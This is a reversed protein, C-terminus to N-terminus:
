QVRWFPPLKVRLLLTRPDGRKKNKSVGMNIWIIWIFGNYKGIFWSINRNKERLDTAAETEKGTTDAELLAAERAEQARRYWRHRTKKAVSGM